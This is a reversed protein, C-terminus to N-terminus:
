DITKPAKYIQLAEMMDSPLPPLSSLTPLRFGAPISWIEAEDVLPKTQRPMIYSIAFKQYDRAVTLFRRLRAPEENPEGSCLLAVGLHAVSRHSEWAKRIDTRNGILGYNHATVGLVHFAKNLSGEKPAKRIIHLVAAATRLARGPPALPAVLGTALASWGRIQRFSEHVIHYAVAYDPDGPSQREISSLATVYPKACYANRRQEDGPWFMYSLLRTWMGSVLSLYLHLDPGFLDMEPM